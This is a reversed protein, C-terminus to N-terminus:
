KSRWAAIKMGSKKLFDNLTISELGISTGDPHRYTIWDGLPRDETDQYTLGISFSKWRELTIKMSTRGAQSTKFIPFVVESPDGPNCFALDYRLMDAHAPLTESLEPRIRVPEGFHRAVYRIPLQSM